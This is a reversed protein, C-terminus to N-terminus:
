HREQIEEAKGYEKDILEIVLNTKAQLTEYLSVIQEDSSYIALCMLKAYDNTLLPSLVPKNSADYKANGVIYNLLQNKYSHQYDTAELLIPIDEQYVDLITTLLKHNEINGLKGSAKFGDYLGSNPVLKVQSFIVNTYKRLTDKPLQQGPPMESVMKMFYSSKKFQTIDNNMEVLDKRFDTHLGLLFEKVEAQEHEHERVRELYGALSVAFVIIVIEISIERLKHWIPMGKLRSLKVIKRSHGLIEHEM